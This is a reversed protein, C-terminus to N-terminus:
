TQSYEFYTLSNREATNGKKQLDHGVSLRKATLQFVDDCEHMIKAANSIRLFKLDNFFYQCQKSVFITNTLADKHLFKLLIKLGSVKTM